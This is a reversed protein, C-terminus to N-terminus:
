GGTMERKEAFGAEMRRPEDETREQVTEPAEESEMAGETPEREDEETEAETEGVTVM